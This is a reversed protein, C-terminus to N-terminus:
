STEENYLRRDSLSPSTDKAADTRHKETVFKSPIIYSTCGHFIASRLMDNRDEQECKAPSLQELM